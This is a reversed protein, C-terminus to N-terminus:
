LRAVDDIEAELRDALRALLHGREAAPTARWAGEEFARRAALIADAADQATAESVTAVLNQDAPCHIERVASDSAERWSGGIFLEPM